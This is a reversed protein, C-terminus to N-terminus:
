SAAPRLDPNEVGVRHMLTSFDVTPDDFRDDYATSFVAIAARATFRRARELQQLRIASGRPHSQV